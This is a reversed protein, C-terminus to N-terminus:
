DGLSVAAEDAAMADGEGLLSSLDIRDKIRDLLDERLRIDDSDADYARVYEARTHEEFAHHIAAYGAPLTEGCVKCECDPHDDAQHRILAEVADFGQGCADIGCAWRSM